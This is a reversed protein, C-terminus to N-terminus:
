LDVCSINSQKQIRSQLSFSRVEQIIWHSMYSGAKPDGLVGGSVYLRLPLKALGRLCSVM